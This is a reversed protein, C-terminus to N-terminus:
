EAGGGMDRLRKVRGEGYEGRSRGEGKGGMGWGGWCGETVQLSKEM